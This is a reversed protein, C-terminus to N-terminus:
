SRDESGEPRHCVRHRDREGTSRQSDQDQHCSQDAMVPETDGQSLLYRDTQTHSSPCPLSKAQLPLWAEVCM